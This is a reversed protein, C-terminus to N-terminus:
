VILPFLLRVKVVVSSSKPMRRLTLVVSSTGLPHACALKACSDYQLCMMQPALGLWPPLAAGPAASAVCLTPVPDACRPSICLVACKAVDPESAPRPLHKANDYWLLAQGRPQAWLVM